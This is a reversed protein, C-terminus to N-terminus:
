VVLGRFMNALRIGSGTCINDMKALLQEQLATLDASADISKLVTSTVDILKDFWLYIVIGFIMILGTFALVGGYKSMFTPQNYREKLNKQLAVRAYRMEKDLFKANLQKMQLDIDGIGINIWEGDSRILIQIIMTM